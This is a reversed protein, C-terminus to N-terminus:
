FPERITKIGDPSEIVLNEGEKYLTIITGQEELYRIRYQNNGLNKWNWGLESTVIGCEEPFENSLIRDSIISKDSKYETYFHPECTELEVQINSEYKAITRWKGIIIDSNFESDDKSSCSFLLFGILIAFLLNLKKM